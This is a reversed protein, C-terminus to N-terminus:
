QGGTPEPPAEGAGEGGAIADITDRIANAITDDINLAFIAALIFGILVIIGMYEAATQGTEDALRDRVRAGLESGQTKIKTYTQLATDRM